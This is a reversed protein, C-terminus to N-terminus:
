SSTIDLTMSAIDVDEEKRLAELIKRSLRDHLERRSRADTIYRINLDIWNDTIKVYVSPEVAKKSIYYKKQLGILEEAAKKAMSTTEEKTIDEIIQIARKWDSEYKIPVNIEDWLFNNDKTYNTISDSIIVKNPVTVVRGTPQDGDVWGKIELITTSLIGIDIVDGFREDMEVRDGVTYLNTLFILM